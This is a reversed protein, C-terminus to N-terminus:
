NCVRHRKYNVRGSDTTVRERVTQCGHAFAYADRGYHGCVRADFCQGMPGIDIGGRPETNDSGAYAPITAALSAAAAAAILIKRM